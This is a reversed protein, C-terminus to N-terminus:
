AGLPVDIVEKSTRLWAECCLTPEVRRHEVVVDIPGQCAALFRVPDILGLRGLVSDEALGVIQDRHERSGLVASAATEAKTTRRLTVEPVVGRMADVLLPKYRAPDYRDVARASLAAEMVRDDFFPAALIVGQEAALQQFGRTAQSGMHVQTLNHHVGGEAALAPEADAARRIEDVAMDLAERTAWTPLTPHMDWGVLPAHIGAGNRDLGDAIERLWSGYTSGSRLERVVQRLPWRNRTAAARLLRAGRAPSRRVVSRLLSPMATCMEDGGLGTLHVAPSHAEGRDIIHRMRSRNHLALFPDDFPEPATLIGHYVLPCEDATIVEHRLSHGDETLAAVTRGAWLVDDDMPDPQASTIAMVDAGNRVALSCLSSSDLGSLHSVVRSGAPARVAVAEVLASRLAAVSEARPREAAPLRWWRRETARGHPDLEVCYAPRVAAVGDWPASWGLPWPAVPFLLRTAIRAPILSSRTLAALVIARDSVVSVGNVTARYMRRVGSATGRTHVAGRVSALVFASGAVRIADADGIARMRGAHEALSAETAAHEGCVAVVADRRRGSVLLGPLWTGVLWPRGSPHAVETAPGLTERVLRAVAISDEIDPLVM